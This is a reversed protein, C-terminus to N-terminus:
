NCNVDLGSLLATVTCVQSAASLEALRSHHAAVDPHSVCHLTNQVKDSTVSLLLKCSEIVAARYCSSVHCARAPVLEFDPLECIWSM